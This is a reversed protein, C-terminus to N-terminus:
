KKDTPDFLPYTPERLLKHDGPASIALNPRTQGLPIGVEALFCSSGYERHWRPFTDKVLSKEERRREEESSGCVDLFGRLNTKKRAKKRSGDHFIESLKRDCFQEGVLDLPIRQSDALWGESLMQEHQSCTSEDAEKRTKEGISSTRDERGRGKGSLNM